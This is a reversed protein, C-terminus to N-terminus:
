DNGAMQPAPKGLEIQASVEPNALGARPTACQSSGNREEVARYDDGTGASPLVRKLFENLLMANLGVIGFRLFSIGIQESRKRPSIFRTADNSSFL